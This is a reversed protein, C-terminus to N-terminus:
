VQKLNQLFVPLCLQPFQGAFLPMIHGASITFFRQFYFIWFPKWFNNWAQSAALYLFLHMIEGNNIVAPKLQNKTQQQQQQKAKTKTKTHPKTQKTTTTTTKYPWIHKL